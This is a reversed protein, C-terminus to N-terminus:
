IRMPMIVCLYRGREDTGAVAPPPEDGDGIEGPVPYGVAQTNEDKLELRVREDDFARLFDLLYDPNIGLRLDGGAYECPVEEVAEGLDPNATLLQLAEDAFQLRVARARDGTLLAVRQVADALAKRGFVVHKDNDRAIVREYDPFTGELIRCILERRGLQFALHHQGRRYRLTDGGEFRLLEQLAKRPVLVHDQHGDSSALGTEVLALRHGDTAVMEVTEGKLKLLAGNLQFRSEEASVAFLVKGVMSRFVGFPVELAYQESVEPLQPFDEPKIGHIKFRSRGARITLWQPEEEALHVEDGVVAGIIERFKKAPVAIAGDAVVDGRVASTLSVDLDTASLRLQDGQAALLIHSLVPITTKREVIGQMPALENLFEGRNLRVEM